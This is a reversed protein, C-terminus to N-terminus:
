ASQNPPSRGLLALIIKVTVALLFDADASKKNAFSANTSNQRGTRKGAIWVIFQGTLLRNLHCSASKQGARQVNGIERCWRAPQGTKRPHRLSTKLGAIRATFRGTVPQPSRYSASARVAAQASGTERCKKARPITIIQQSCKRLFFKLGVKLDTKM